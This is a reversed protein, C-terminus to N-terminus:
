SIIVVLIRVVFIEAYLFLFWRVPKSEGDKLLMLAPHDESISGEDLTEVQAKGRKGKM